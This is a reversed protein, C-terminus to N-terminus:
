SAGGACSCGAAAAAAAGDVSAAPVAALAPLALRLFALRVLLCAATDAAPSSRGFSRGDIPATSALPSPGGCRFRAPRARAAAGCAVGTASAESGM